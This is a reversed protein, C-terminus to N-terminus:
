CYNLHMVNLACYFMFACDLFRDQKITKLIYTANYQKSLFTMFWHNEIVAGPGFNKIGM